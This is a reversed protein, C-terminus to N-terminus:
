LEWFILLKDFTGLTVLNNLHFSVHTLSWPWTDQGPLLVGQSMIQDQQLSTASGQELIFELINMPLQPTLIMYCSTGKLVVSEGEKRYHNHALNM